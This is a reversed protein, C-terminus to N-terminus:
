SPVGDESRWGLGGVRSGELDALTPADVTRELEFSLAVDREKGSRNQWTRVLQFLRPGLRHVHDSM